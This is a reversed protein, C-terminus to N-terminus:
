QFGTRTLNFPFEMRDAATLYDVKKHIHPNEELRAAKLPAPNGIVPAHKNINLNQIIPKKLIVETDVKKDAM